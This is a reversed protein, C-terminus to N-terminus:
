RVLQPVCYWRDVRYGKFLFSLSSHERMIREVREDDEVQIRQAESRPSLLSLMGTLVNGDDSGNSNTIRHGGAGPAAVGSPPSFLLPQPSSVGAPPSSLQASQSPPPSSMPPSLLPSPSLITMETSGPRRKERRKEEAAQARANMMEGKLMFFASMPSAIVWLILSPMATGLIWKTHHETYCKERMDAVLYNDSDTVGVRECLFM